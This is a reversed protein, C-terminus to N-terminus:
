GPFLTDAPYLTEAPYLGITPSQGGLVRRFFLASFPGQMFPPFVGVKQWFLFSLPTKERM